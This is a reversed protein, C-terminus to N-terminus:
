SEHHNSLLTHYLTILAHQHQALSYKQEFRVRAKEGWQQAQEPNTVLRDLTKALDNADGASFLLGEKEHRVQEPIGGINAGIIPKGYAMAEIVAMSCNEYCESPVIVAKAHKLLHSLAEGQQFGLLNVNPYDQQLEDFLPGQGVINLSALNKMLGHAKALTRVGKEESLRGLYLLYDGSEYAANTIKDDIGNVIVDVRNNPLKERIFRALFQSPAIVVDLDQYFGRWQQYLAEAGMLVSKGLSGQCRYKIVNLVSGHVCAECTHGHQYLTYNPCVIKTDHATLVTKCGAEKAQRILSPTLQHYINHFHVIDPQEKNLLEAFKTNAERNQLFSMATKLKSKVSQTQHYDINSVFYSSFDSPFNNDHQMSFDIINYGAKMLLDREQFFVTEAGGKLFFFKNVLLIKM